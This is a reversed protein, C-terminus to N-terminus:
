AKILHQIGEGQYDMFYSGTQRDNCGSYRYIKKKLYSVLCKMTKYANQTYQESTVLWNIM